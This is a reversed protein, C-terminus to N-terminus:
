KGEWLEPLEPVEDTHLSDPGGVVLKLVLIPEPGGNQMDYNVKLCVTQCGVDKADHRLLRAWEGPVLTRVEQDPLERLREIALELLSSITRYM